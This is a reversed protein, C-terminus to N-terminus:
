RWNFVTVTSIVIIVIIHAVPLGNRHGNLHITPSGYTVTEGVNRDVIDKIQEASVRM